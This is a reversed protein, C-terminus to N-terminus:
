IIVCKTDTKTFYFDNSKAFYYTNYKIINRMKYRNKILSSTESREGLVKFAPRTYPLTYFFTYLLTSFTYFFTYLYPFFKKLTYFFPKILGILLNTTIYPYVYLTEKLLLRYLTSYTLTYDVELVAYIM